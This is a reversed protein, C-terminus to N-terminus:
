IAIFASCARRSSAFCRCRSLRPAAIAGPCGACAVARCYGSGTPILEALVVQGSHSLWAMRLCCSESFFRLSSSARQTNPWRAKGAPRISVRLLLHAPHLLLHIHLRALLSLRSFPVGFGHSEWEPTRLTLLSNAPLSCFSLSGHRFFGLTEHAEGQMYPVSLCLGKSFRSDQCSPTWSPCFPDLASDVVSRRWCHSARRFLGYSPLLGAQCCRKARTDVQLTHCVRKRVRRFQSLSM